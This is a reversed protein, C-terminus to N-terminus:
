ETSHQAGRASNRARPRCANRRSADRPGGACAQRGATSRERGCAETPGALASNVALHGASLEAPTAPLGKAPDSTRKQLVELLATEVDNRALAKAAAATSADDLLALKQGAVVHDGPAVLFRVIRGSTRPFVGDAPASTAGGSANGAPSGPGSAATAMAGGGGAAGPVSIQTSTSAQVIRGVGGVSVVLDGKVARAVPTSAPATGASLKWVGIGTGTGAALVAGVLLWIFRFGIM